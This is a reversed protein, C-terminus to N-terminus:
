KIRINKLNRNDEFKPVTIKLVGDHFSADIKEPKVEGIYFQREFQGFFRERRVYNQTEEKSKSDSSTRTGVVTLYGDNIGISLNNKKFGPLDMEIIYSNNKEYIDCRVNNYLDNNQLHRDFFGLESNNNM